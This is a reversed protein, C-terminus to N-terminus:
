AWIRPCVGLHEVWCCAAGGPVMQEYKDKCYYCPPPDGDLWSLSCLGLRRKDAASRRRRRGRVVGTNVTRSGKDGTLSVMGSGAVAEVEGGGGNDAERSTVEGPQPRVGAPAPAEPAGQCKVFAAYRPDLQTYTAPDANPHALRMRLIELTTEFADYAGSEQLRLACVHVCRCSLETVMLPMGVGCVVPWPSCCPERNTGQM